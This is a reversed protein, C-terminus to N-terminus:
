ENADDMELSNKQSDDIQALYVIRNRLEKAKEVPLAPIDHSSAITGITISSLGFKRLLPGQNTNVYEVRSMPVIAHYKHFYGHKIQIHDKDIEYRWTRQLYVPYITLKYITSLIIYGIIIFLIVSIWSYWNFYYYAFFLISLIILQILASISDRIRWVTIAKSSIKESPEPFQM